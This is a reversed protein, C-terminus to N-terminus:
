SSQASHRLGVVLQHVVRAIREGLILVNRLYAGLLLRGTTPAPVGFTLFQPAGVGATRFLAISIPRIGEGPEKNNPFAAERTGPPPCLSATDDIQWGDRSALGTLRLRQMFSVLRSESPGRFNDFLLWGSYILSGGRAQSAESRGM